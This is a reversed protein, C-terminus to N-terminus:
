ERGKLIKKMGQYISSELSEFLDDNDIVTDADVDAGNLNIVTKGRYNALLWCNLLLAKANMAIDGTSKSWEVVNEALSSVIYSISTEKGFVIKERTDSMWDVIFEQLFENRSVPKESDESTFYKFDDKEHKQYDNMKDSWINWCYM